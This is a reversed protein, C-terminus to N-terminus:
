ILGHRRATRQARTEPPCGALAWDIDARHATSYHDEMATHNAGSDDSRVTHGCNFFCSVTFNPAPSDLDLPLQGAAELAAATGSRIPM